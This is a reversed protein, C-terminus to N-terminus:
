AEEGPLTEGTVAEYLSRLLDEDAITDNDDVFRRRVDALAEQLGPQTIRAGPALRQARAAMRSAIDTTWLSVLLLTGAVSVVTVLGVWSRAVAAYAILTVSLAGAATLPRPFRWQSM